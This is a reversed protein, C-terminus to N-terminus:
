RRSFAQERKALLVKPLAQAFARLMDPGPLDRPKTGAIAM